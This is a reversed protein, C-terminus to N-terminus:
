EARSFQVVAVVLAVITLLAVMALEVATPLRWGNWTM